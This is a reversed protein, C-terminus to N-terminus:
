VEGKVALRRSREKPLRHTHPAYHHTYLAIAFALAPLKFCVLCLVCVKFLTFAYCFCFQLMFVFRFEVVFVFDLKGYLSYDM